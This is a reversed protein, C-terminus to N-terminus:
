WRQRSKSLQNMKHSMCLSSSSRSRHNLTTSSSSSHRRQAQNSHPASKRLTWIQHTCSTGSWEPRLSPKNRLWPDGLWIITARLTKTTRTTTPLEVSPVAALCSSCAARSRITALHQAMTAQMSLSTSAPPARYSKSSPQPTSATTATLWMPKRISLKLWDKLSERSRSPGKTWLLTQLLGRRRSISLSRPPQIRSLSLTCPSTNAQSSSKTRATSIKSSRTIKARTQAVDM